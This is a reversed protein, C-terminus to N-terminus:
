RRVAAKQEATPPVVDELKNIPLGKLIAGSEKLRVDYLEPNATSAWTKACVYGAVGDVNCSSLLDVSHTIHARM